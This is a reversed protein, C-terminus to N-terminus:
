EKWRGVVRWMHETTVTSSWTFATQSLASVTFNEAATINPDETNAPTVTNDYFPVPFTVTGGNSSSPNVPYQEMRGNALRMVRIDNIIADQVVAGAILAEFAKIKILDEGVIEKIQNRTLKIESIATSAM